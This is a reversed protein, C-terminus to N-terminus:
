AIVKRFATELIDTAGMRKLRPILDAITEKKVAIKLSYGENNYLKAVTPSKMCPLDKLITELLNEQINMELMVRERANLVSIILTKITEIIKNTDENKLAGPNVIMRTTSKQIVDVIKLNNRRLTEGTSTNDIIMDADEPPFVETAGYTRIFNYKFGNKDLYDKTIKVYESAVIIKRKRLDEFNENEPIASVIQVPDFGLDMLETVDSDTEEIWDKGAFGLDHSGLQLLQPINQPKMVKVEINPFSCRPKYHRSIEEIGLGADNLLTIIKKRLRGKPIVMKLKKM